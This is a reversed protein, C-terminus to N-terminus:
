GLPFHIDLRDRARGDTCHLYHRRGPNEGELCVEIGSKERSLVSFALNFQRLPCNDCRRWLQVGFVANTQIVLKLPFRCAIQFRSELDICLQHIRPSM